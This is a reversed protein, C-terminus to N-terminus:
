QTFLNLFFRIGAKCHMTVKMTVPSVYNQRIIIWAAFIVVTAQYVVVLAAGLRAATYNLGAREYLGAQGQGLQAVFAVATHGAGLVVAASSGGPGLSSVGGSVLLALTQVEGAPVTFADRVEPHAVAAVVAPIPRILGLVAHVVGHGGGRSPGGSRCCCLLWSFSKRDNSSNKGLV